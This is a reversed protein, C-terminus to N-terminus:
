RSDEQKAVKTTQAGFLLRGFEKYDLMKDKDTDYEAFLEQM